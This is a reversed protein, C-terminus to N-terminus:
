LAAVAAATILLAIAWLLDLNVWARRLVRLGVREYVVVALLGTVLLYAATHVLTAGLAVLGPAASAAHGAHAAHVAHAADPLQAAWAESPARVAGADAAFPVAM